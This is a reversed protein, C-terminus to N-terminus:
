DISEFHIGGTGHVGEGLICALLAGVLAYQKWNGAGLGCYYCYIIKVDSIELVASTIIEEKNRAFTPL